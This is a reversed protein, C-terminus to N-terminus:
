FGIERIVVASANRLLELLMSRKDAEIHAVGRLKVIPVGAPSCGEMRVRFIPSDALVTGQADTRSAIAGGYTSALFLEDITTSNVRDIVAVQCTYVGFELADPIFSARAGVRIRELDRENVYADVRSKSTDAIVYLPEKRPLWVGPALEDNRAVIIGDFPARVMLQGMVDSLGSLETTGAEFRRQIVGGQSLLKEDFTQQDTQWRSVATATTVQRTQQEMDPSRLQLLTEGARVAKMEVASESLVLSSFPASVVQEGAASLAAPASLRGRTPVVLCVILGILLLMSRFTNMNIGLKDRTKWWQAMEKYLPHIIFWGIEVAFLFIGLAKFFYHYVLGAIGLFVVFRYIWVTLAFLVLFLKLRLSAPEPAPAGLGFLWERLWWRGFAFSRQHLNPVRLFDSLIFYGDFRMFPSANLAITMLWTTTALIFAAARLPGEPLLLWAWLALLALLLEAIVGAAGIALRQTRSTLKWAENTDTYLMPTMVVLAFGMSPIRCGYRHATYAHGFEHVVKALPIACGVILLGELSRYAAFSHLFLEWQHSLLYFGSLMALVVLAYFPRSFFLGAVGATKTLFRDPQLVPIRIFLYNNLLWKAWGPRSATHAAIIRETGSASATQLLFNQQLFIVLDIVDQEVVHLTTEGNVAEVVSKVTGLSWRSLIEFAPWGLLYFKNAPPDHLTWAPTGSEEPPAPFLGLEQRLPPLSLADVM